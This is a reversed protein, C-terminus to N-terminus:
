RLDKLATAVGIATTTTSGFVTTAASIHSDCFLVDHLLDKTVLLTFAAVVRLLVRTM